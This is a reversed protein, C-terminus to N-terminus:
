LCLCHVAAAGGAADVDGKGMFVVRKPMHHKAANAHHAAIFQHLVGFEGAVGGKIHAHFKAFIQVANTEQVVGGVDCVIAIDPGSDVTGGVKGLRTSPKIEFLEVLDDFVGHLAVHTHEAHVEAREFGLVLLNDGGTIAFQTAGEGCGHLSLRICVMVVM